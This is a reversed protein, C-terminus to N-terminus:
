VVRVREVDDVIVLWEGGLGRRHRQVVVDAVSLPCEHEGRIMVQSVLGPRVRDM